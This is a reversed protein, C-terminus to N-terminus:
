SPAMKFQVETCRADFDLVLRPQLKFLVSRGLLFTRTPNIATFPSSRWDNVCIIATQCQRSKETADTMELQMPYTFYFFPQGLHRSMRLIDEPQVNVIGHQALWEVDTYCEEAGTDLDAETQLHTNDGRLAISLAPYLDGGDKTLHWRTSLEEIAFVRPSFFAFPYKGTKECIKLLEERGPFNQLTAGHSVVQSDVVMLWKANLANLQKEVWPWNFAEAEDHYRSKGERPLAKYEELTINRGAFKEESSPPKPALTTNQLIEIAAAVARESEANLTGLKERVKDIVIEATM